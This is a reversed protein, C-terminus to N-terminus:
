NNVAARHAVVADATVYAWGPQDVTRGALFLVWYTEVRAISWKAIIEGDPGHDHDPEDCLFEGDIVNCDSPCEAMVADLSEVQEDTLAWNGLYTWYDIM